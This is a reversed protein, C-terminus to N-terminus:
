WRRENARRQDFRDGATLGLNLALVLQSNIQDCDMYGTNHFAAARSEQSWFKVM